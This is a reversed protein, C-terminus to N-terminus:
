RTRCLQHRLHVFGDGNDLELQLSLGNETVGLPVHVVAGHEVFDVILVTSNGERTPLSLSLNELQEVGVQRGDIRRVRVFQVLVLLIQHVLEPPREALALLHLAVQPQQVFVTREVQHAVTKQEVM